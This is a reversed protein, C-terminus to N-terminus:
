YASILAIVDLELELSHRRLELRIFQSFRLCVRVPQDAKLASILRENTETCPGGASGFPNSGVVKHSHPGLALRWSVAIIYSM